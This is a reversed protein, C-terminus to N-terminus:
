PCGGWNGIVILMDSVGVMGDNDIDAACPTPPCPGWTALVTTFDAAAVVGDGNIDGVCGEATATVSVAALDHDSITYSIDFGVTSAIPPGQVPEPLGYFQSTSSSGVGGNSLYFPDWFLNTSPGVAQGDITTRFLAPPGSSISGGGVGTTLGVAVNASLSSGGTFSLAVPLSVSIDVDIDNGLQNSLALQGDLLGSPDALINFQLMQGSAPDLGAGVYRFWGNEVEMGPPTVVNAPNGNVAWTISLNPGGGSATATALACGCVLGAVRGTLRDSSRMM